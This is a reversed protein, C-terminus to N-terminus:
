DEDKEQSPKTILDIIWQRFKASRLTLVVVIVALGIGVPLVGKPLTLHGFFYGITVMSISWITSALASMHFYTKFPLKLRHASLPVITRVFPVFRGLIIFLQWRKPNLNATIKETMEENLHRKVWPIKDVQKIVWAGLWYNISDGIASALAFLLVLILFEQPSHHRGAFGAATMVLADGPIFGTVIGGTEILILLFLISLEVISFNADVHGIHTVWEGIAGFAAIM